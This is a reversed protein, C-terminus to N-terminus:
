TDGRPLCFAEKLWQDNEISEVTLYIVDKVVGYNAKILAVIDQCEYPYVWVSNQLRAFGLKVLWRRLEQRILKKKEAIDFTIVRYKGDWKKPRPIEFDELEFKALLDEGKATLAFGLSSNRSVLKKKLLNDIARNAYYRQLPEVRKEEFLWDLFARTPATYSYKVPVFCYSYEKIGNLILQQVNVRAM